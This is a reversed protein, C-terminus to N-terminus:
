QKPMTAGNQLAKEAEAIMRKVMEGGVSGNERSTLDGNYGDKLNVGLESAVEYKFKNLAGKANPNLVNNSNNNNYAMEKEGGQQNCGYQTYYDGLNFLYINSKILFIEKVEL